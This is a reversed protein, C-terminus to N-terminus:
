KKYLRYLLFFMTRVFTVSVFTVLVGLTGVSVGLAGIGTLLVGSAGITVGSAEIAFFLFSFVALVGESHTRGSSFTLQSVILYGM